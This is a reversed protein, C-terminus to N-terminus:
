AVPESSRSLLGAIDDAPAAASHLWGQYCDCGNERLFALQEETEVGEAIAKLGLSHALKIVSVAIAADSPDTALARVFSRDIKLVSVPFQRLLQLSSYGTGFDDISIRIGRLALKKIAARAVEPDQTLASETVELELYSPDFGTEDLISSVTDVFGPHDLQRLSVNVALRIPRIGAREWERAQECATRLVHEGLANIVGTDEAIPIFQDPPIAGNEQHNWRALAEVGEVEGTEVSVQPQYHVDIERDSIARRLERELDFHNLSMLMDPQYVMYKNRGSEKARYMAADAAKVVARLDDGNAPFFALGVSITVHIEREDLVFPHAFAAILREVVTVADESTSCRPLLVLFEDGGVRAVTDGQRVSGALRVAVSKLLDDGITHGFTDNVMKLRDVDISVIGLSGGDRQTQALAVGARDEFLARNPLRTLADHYALHRMIEESRRRETIDRAIGMIHRSGGILIPQARIEVPVITGDKRRLDLEDPGTQDGAFNRAFLEAALPLQDETILGSQLIHTGVLEERKYGTIEEAARNGDVFVGSEDLLYYADPAFEILTRFQEESDRLAEEALKKDTIDFATGLVAPQGDYEIPGATFDLWREEGSKTVIKVEYRSPADEGSQRAQGRSRVIEKFDPHMIDWFDMQGLEEASYGSIREGAPSTYLIEEGRFIFIAAAATEALTRFKEESERLAQEAHYRDTVDRSNAVITPGDKDEVVSGIVEMYRWSGDNHRFRHQIRRSVGKNQPVQSFERRLEELDDPHVFELASRGILEEPDYGLMPKLSPSLFRFTADPNLVIILDHANKILTRWRSESEQLAEEAKKRVTINEHAIATHGNNQFRTVRMAFWREEDPSHCPYELQFFESRGSLVARIGELAEAAYPADGAATCAALYNAGTGCGGEICGNERAFARWVENVYTITGEGDIIAIHSSLADLSSQLFQESDVLAQEATKQETIDSALITVSATKGARSVPFIRAMYWRREGSASFTAVENTYDEGAEFARDVARTHADHYEPTIYEYWCTGLVAGIDYGEEVRNIYQIIGDRDINIIIDPTNQVLTRWREESELLADEALKRETIDTTSFVCRKAGTEPDTVSYLRTDMFRTHGQSTNLSIEERRVTAGDFVRAILEDFTRREAEDPLLAHYHRGIIEPGYGFVSECAPNWNEIRGDPAVAFIPNPSNDVTQRHREESIRLTEEAQKRETIDVSVGISGALNGDADHTTALSLLAPFTSGDKRRMEIEGSWGEDRQIAKLLEAARSLHDRAIIDMVSRGIAEQQTWGYITEASRGWYTVTGQLDTAIVAQGVADLLRSQFAVEEERRTKAIHSGLMEAISNLLSQEEELFPGGDGGDRPESYAVEIVGAAESTDFHASQMWETEEFGETGACTDGYTIRAHAIDPYRYATPLMEAVRSLLEPVPLGERLLQSARHLTTIEKVRESLELLAQERSENADKLDTIDSNIGDIRVPNGDADTVLRTRARLWRVEGDPRLIRYELESQGSEITEVPMRAAAEYDDPHVVEMWLRSNQRFESVPRGYVNEVAANVYLVQHTHPTHSYVVDPTSALVGDLRSTTEELEEHAKALQEHERQLQEELERRRSADLLDETMENFAAGVAAIERPGDVPARFNLDGASVARAANQLSTIPRLVSRSVVYAAGVAIILGLGGSSVLLWFTIDGFRHADAEYREAAMTESDSLSAFEEINNGISLVSSAFIQIAADSEGQERLEIVTEWTGLIETSTDTLRQIAAADEERGQDILRLRIREQNTVVAEAEESFLGLFERDGTLLYFEFLGFAAFMHGNLSELLAANESHQHSRDDAARNMNQLAITSVIIAFLILLIASVGVIIRGRISALFPVGVRINRAHKETM